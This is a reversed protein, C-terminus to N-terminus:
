AVVGQWETPLKHKRSLNCPPCSIVINSIDNSGGRKLPIYHDAHYKGNLNKSCWFCTGSQAKYLDIIQYKTFSGPAAYEISRRRAKKEKNNLSVRDKNEKNWTKSRARILAYNKRYYIKSYEALKEKNSLNYLADCKAKKEKKEEKSMPVRTSYVYRAMVQKLVCSRCHSHYYGKKLFSFDGTSKITHCHTCRKTNAPLVEIIKPTKWCMRCSSYFGDKKQKDKVFNEHTAPFTKNCKSCKKSLLM